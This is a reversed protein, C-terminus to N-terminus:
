VNRKLDEDSISMFAKKLEPSAKSADKGYAQAIIKEINTKLTPSREIERDKRNYGAALDEVDKYKNEVDRKAQNYLSDYKADQEAVRGGRATLSNPDYPQYLQSGLPTDAMDNLDDPRAIEYGKPAYSNFISVGEDGLEHVLKSVIAHKEAGTGRVYPDESKQFGWEYKKMYEELRKKKVAPGQVGFYQNIETEQLAQKIRKRIYAELKSKADPRPFVKDLVSKLPEKIDNIKRPPKSEDTPDLDYMANVNGGKTGVFFAQSGNDLTLVLENKEKNFTAKDVRGSIGLITDPDDKPNNPDSEITFSVQKSIVQKKNDDTFDENVKIGFSPLAAKQIALFDSGLTKAKEKTEKWDDSGNVLEKTKDNIIYYKYRLQNPKVDAMKVGMNVPVKYSRAGQGSISTSFTKFAGKDKKPEKKAPDGYIPEGEPTRRGILALKREKGPQLPLSVKLTGKITQMGRQPDDVVKEFPIDRDYVFEESGILSKLTKGTMTGDTTKGSSYKVSVRYKEEDKIQTDESLNERISEMNEYAVKILKYIAPKKELKQKVNYDIVAGREPESTTMDFLLDVFRKILDSMKDKAEKKEKQSVSPTESTDYNKIIQTFVREVKDDLMFVAAQQKIKKINEPDEEPKDSKVDFEDEEDDYDLDAIFGLDIDLSEADDQSYVSQKPKSTFKKRVIKKKQDDTLFSMLTYLDLPRNSIGKSIDEVPILKLKIKNKQEDTLADVVEKKLRVFYTYDAGARQGYKVKPMTIYYVDIEHNTENSPIVLPIVKPNVHSKLTKYEEESINRYITYAEQNLGKTVNNFRIEHVSGPKYSSKLGEPNIGLRSSVKKGKGYLDTDRQQRGSGTRPIDEIGLSKTRPRAEKLFDYIEKYLGM